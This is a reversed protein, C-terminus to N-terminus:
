LPLIECSLGEVWKKHEDNYYLYSRSAPGVYKGPVRAIVDIKFKLTEKSDLSKKYIAINRGIIEYSDFIEQKVLEKLQDHRPELGGPLGVIALSMGQKSDSKNILEVNVEGGEGETFSTQSLKTSIDIEAEFSNEPTKSHYNVSLSYPVSCGDSLTVEISHDGSKSLYEGLDLEAADSNKAIIPVTLKHKSDITITAMGSRESKKPVKEEYKLIAKLALCTAQTSGYAGGKCTSHIWRMANEVEKTYSQYDNLWCLIALATTEVLQSSGRSGTITTSSPDCDMFGKKNQLKSLKQSMESGEKKMGVNYLSNGCLAATYSEKTDKNDTYVTEIEKKIEEVIGAESLAWVIYAVKVHEKAYGGFQYSKAKNPVFSGKGDRRELLWDVTRKLLQEDIAYVKKMESFELVAL